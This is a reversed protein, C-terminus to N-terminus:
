FVQETKKPEEPAKEKRRRYYGIAFIVICTGWFTQLAGTLLAQKGDIEIDLLPAIIFASVLISSISSLLAGIPALLYAKMGSVYRQILYASYICAAFFLM